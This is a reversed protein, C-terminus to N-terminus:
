SRLIRLVEEHLHGNSTVSAPVDISRAGDDGTLRGGAEEVIVQLAAIDWPSIDGELAVDASGEAVMCHQWFDGYGRTRWARALLEPFGNPWRAICYRHAGYLLQMDEISTCDSVHIRVPLIGTTARWAGLDRGAWWRTHLAAASAVGVELEGDRELAILTAWIPMGRAFGHTGDIPDIIWRAAGPAGPSYGQEEGLISHDPFREAIRARLAAEVARDGRTVLTGDAKAETGHEGRFHALALADAEDALNLAFDLLDATSPTSTM